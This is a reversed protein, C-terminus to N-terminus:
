ESFFDIRAKHMKKYFVLKPNIKKSEFIIQNLGEWFLFWGGPEFLVVLFTTAFSNGKYLFLILTALFMLIIGSLIFIIGTKMIGRKDKELLFHHRKFHDRLRKKIQNEKNNDRKYKAILFNLELQNEDKDMSARQIEDLFDVSLSRQSYLRPDFDSFVDDYSNLRLIIEPAKLRTKVEKKM